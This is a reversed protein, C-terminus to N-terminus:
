RADERDGSSLPLARPRRMAAMAIGLSLACGGVLIGLAVKPAISSCFRQASTATGDTNGDAGIVSSFYIYAAGALMLALAGGLVILLGGGVALFARRPTGIRDPATEM